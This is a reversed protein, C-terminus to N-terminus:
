AAESDEEPRDESQRQETPFYEDISAPTLDKLLDRKVIEPITAYSIKRAMDALVNAWVSEVLEVPIFRRQRDAIQIQLLTNENDLKTARKVAMTKDRKQHLERYFRLVGKITATLQYQGQIPPPFFGQSALQRHRRDTLGTLACLNEASITQVDAM